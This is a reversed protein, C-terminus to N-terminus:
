GKKNKIGIDRYREEIMPIISEPVFSSIDGGYSAFERVVSSSLYSYSRATTLFVTELSDYELHNTHAMQLEYEFDTTTRLGRVIINAGNEKAYDVLLGSWSSVRVNQIDCLLGSIMNVREDASFLKCKQSNDMVLITLEDFIMAARKIIDLHGLTVPDFSGPYIAKKM